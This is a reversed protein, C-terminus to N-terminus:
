SVKSRSPLIEALATGVRRAFEVHNQAFWERARHGKDRLEDDSMQMAETIAQEMAGEDFHWTVTHGMTGAEHAAVLL